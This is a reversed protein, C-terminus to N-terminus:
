AVFEGVIFPRGDLREQRVPRAANRTYIVPAHELSLLEIWTDDNAQSISVDGNAGDAGGAIARQASGLSRESIALAYSRDTAHWVVL